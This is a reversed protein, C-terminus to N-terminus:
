KKYCMIKEWKEPFGMKSFLLEQSIHPCNKRVSHILQKLEAKFQKFEQNDILYRLAIVVAFLDKKGIAYQGKKRPLQLKSHLVTDPIAENVQFSYLRENHACVNRCSALIRILQHLQVESMNAFNLSVKTRIDSTTYQYMKSIQGFTLANTAVWLPVNGYMTAHHTIYSYNSPLAITKSLTTILRNIKSQNRRTYNYNGATLYATQQEGYKECFYYSLMSKLQREVHLIYKLFLTRLEEDFYYFATIEEFTVGHLYNGSPKHKFLDKYGGILSFYGLKQLTTKAFEPDSIVLQKEKELKEQNQQLLNKLIEKQKATAFYDRFLSVLIANAKRSINQEALDINPNIKFDYKRDKHKEYFDIKEKPIKKYEDESFHNIIELVETYAKAYLNNM